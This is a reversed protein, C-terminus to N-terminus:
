LNCGIIAFNSGTKNTDQCLFSFSSVIIKYFPLFILGYVTRAARSKAKNVNQHRCLLIPELIAQNEVYTCLVAREAWTEM